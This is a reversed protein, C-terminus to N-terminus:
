KGLCFHAFIDNILDATWVSGTIEGLSLWAQRLDDALLESPTTELSALARKVLDLAISIARHHRQNTVFTTDESFTGSVFMEEVGDKLAEIGQEQLASIQKIRSFGRAKIDSVGIVPPLDTKNLAVLVKDPAINEMLLIDEPSLPLSSDLVLIILDASKALKRAREVGIKEVADFSERIGATDALRLPIGRIVVPVELIDRTTGPIDTVIAREEGALVNLLSSKGVNPSGLIATALGERYIKGENFTQQLTELVSEQRALASVAKTKETDEIEAEPYDIDAEIWALAASIGKMAEKIVASLRGQLHSRAIAAAQQSGASIVDAIAEAQALDMKGNLFARKSFEGPEALSAGAALLAKLLARLLFPGGHCHYEVVDEGTFSRPGKFWVFYGSDVFRGLEDCFDGYYMRGPSSLKGARPHFLNSGLLFAQPGSIRIIAVGGLGPPTAIAAITSQAYM